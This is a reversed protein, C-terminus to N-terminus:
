WPQWNELNYVKLDDNRLTSATLKTVSM